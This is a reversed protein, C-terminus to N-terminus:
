PFFTAPVLIGVRSGYFKGLSGTCSLWVQLNRLFADQRQGAGQM